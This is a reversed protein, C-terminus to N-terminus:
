ELYIPFYSINWVVLWILIANRADQLVLHLLFPHVIQSRVFRSVQKCTNRLFRQLPETHPVTQQTFKAVTSAEQADSNASIKTPIHCLVVTQM